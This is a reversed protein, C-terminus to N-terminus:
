QPNVISGMFLVSGTQNDRIACFFPRDVKMQFPEDMPIAATARIGISTVAAAETGEENVEVFTKHKVEDIQTPVPSIGSFNAQRSFAEAMGLQALIPALEVKYELKFRPIQIAGQRNRFQGMWQEWNAATLNRQLETLNSTKKPLLVVMSMRRGNGYPLMVGQFLANDLYRYEGRQAMLPHIKSSGNTLYFPETRTQQKDFQRSWNGKFYIANILVMVDDQQLQDIIETIKGQTNQSVWANITSVARPDAFNLETLKAQYFQQNRQIFEPKFPVGQRTWLSNAIALQVKPDPNELLAKLDANAQNLASLSMGQIEMARAMGQQTKGDAGNYVMALAIAVSSPSVFVNQNPQQNAISSFLKFGFRTNADVLQSNVSSRQAMLKSSQSQPHVQSPQSNVLKPQTTAPSSKAWAPAIQALRMWGLLGLLLLSSGAVLGFGLQMKRRM